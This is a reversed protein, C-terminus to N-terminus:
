TRQQVVQVLSMVEATRCQLIDISQVTFTMDKAKFNNTLRLRLIRKLRKNCGCSKDNAMIVLM